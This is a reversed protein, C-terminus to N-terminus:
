IGVENDAATKADQIEINLRDVEANANVFRNEADAILTGFEDFDQTKAREIDM